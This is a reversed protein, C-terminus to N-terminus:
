PQPGAAGFLVADIMQELDQQVAPDATFRMRRGVDLIVAYVAHVLYRAEGCTLEPRVRVLLGAWADASKRQAAAYTRRRGPPLNAVEAFYVTIQDPHRFGRRVYLRGLERLTHAPDDSAALMRDQASGLGSSVRAFAADLLAPKGDFYRYVGSATLGAASAIEEISVEHYGRRAFLRVSERLLRERRDHTSPTPTAACPRGAHPDAAPSAVIDRCVGVLLPPVKRAALARRHGTISGLVSLAGTTRMAIQTDTLDPRVRRVQAALRRDIVRMADSVERRDDPTLIRAQWRYLGGSRRHELATRALSHLLAELTDASAADSEAASEQESGADEVAADLVGVLANVASRFMAYKGPYHRYLAPASIGVEAAIENMGVGHYGRESFAEAAVTAIRAKRDKPRPRRARGPATADAGDAGDADPIGARASRAPM